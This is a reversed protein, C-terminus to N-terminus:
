EHRLAEVPHMAAARIAPYLGFIVGVGVSIGFALPISWPVVEPTVSKIVDPLNAVVEPMPPHGDPHWDPPGNNINIDSRRLSLRSGPVSVVENPDPAERAALAPDNVVFAWPLAANAGETGQPSAASGVSGGQACAAVLVVLVAVGSTRNMM